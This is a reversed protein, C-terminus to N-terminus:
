AARMQIRTKCRPYNKCGWFPRGQHKEREVLKVGCNACTPRWYDGELAVNLLARQQEPSRGDILELLDCVDLLNISNATAFARAEASYTSTTAFQGRAVKKDAMVGRLERIEKVGVVKGGQWHKCQVISVPGEPQSRSYLWIDVGGDAGHSQSKTEFGAQAFLAEVVAEFRRWEIVEFVKPSWTTPRARADAEGRGETRAARLLETPTRDVVPRAEKADPAANRQRGPEETDSGKARSGVCFLLGAAGFLWGCWSIPKLAAAFPAPLFMPGVLFVLGLVVLKIGNEQQRRLATAESRRREAM